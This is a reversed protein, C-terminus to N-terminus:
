GSFKNQRVSNIDRISNVCKGIRILLLLQQYSGMCRIVTIFPQKKIIIFVNQRRLQKWKGLDKHDLSYFISLILDLSMLKVEATVETAYNRTARGIVKQHM